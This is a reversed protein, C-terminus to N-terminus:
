RTSSTTWRPPYVGQGNAFADDLERVAQALQRSKSQDSPNQEVERAIKLLDDFSKTV